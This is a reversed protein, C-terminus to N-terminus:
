VLVLLRSGYPPIPAHAPLVHTFIVAARDTEAPAASRSVVSGEPVAWDFAISGGREDAPYLDPTSWLSRLFSSPSDVTGDATCEAIEEGEPTILRDYPPEELIMQLAAHVAPLESDAVRPDRLEDYRLGLRRFEGKARDWYSPPVPVASGEMAWAGRGRHVRTLLITWRRASLSAALDRVDFRQSDSLDRLLVGQGPVTAEVEFFGWRGDSMERLSARDAASLADGRAREFRDLVMRGYALHALPLLLSPGNDDGGRFGWRSLGTRWEDAGPSDLAFDILEHFLRQRHRDEPRCCGKYPRGSGCPCASNPGLPGEM